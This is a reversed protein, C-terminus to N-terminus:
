RLVFEAGPVLWYRRFYLRVQDFLPAPATAHRARRGDLIKQFARWAALGNQHLNWSALTPTTEALLRLATATEGQGVHAEALDITALLFERRQDRARCEERVLRLIAVAESSKGLGHAIRGQLWHFRVQVEEDFQRYLPRARDLIALAEEPRGAASLFEALHHQARLEMRPERVPNLLRLGHEIHAIGRDPNVYGITEGMAILTKGQLHPQGAALFLSLAKELIAEATEFEGVAAAYSADVRYLHAKDLPDGAGEENWRWAEAIAHRAAELDASLRRCDALIGFARARMDKAAAEGGVALPDLLNVVDLALLAIDAAEQLDRARHERAADLLAQFLGWHHWDKHEIVASLREQPLLPDLVSWHGWGRLHDLAIEREVTTAFKFAAQFAAAYDGEAYAKAGRKGFWYGGEAAIRELLARCDACQGILHRVFARKEPASVRGELFRRCLDASLHWTEAMHPTTTAILAASM